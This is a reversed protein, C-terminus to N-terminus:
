LDPLNWGCNWRRIQKFSEKPLPFSDRKELYLIKENNNVVGIMSSIPVSLERMVFGESDMFSVNLTTYTINRARKVKENFPKLSLQYHVIGDRWKFNISAKANLPIIGISSYDRTALLAQLERRAREQQQLRQAELERREEEKEMTRLREEEEAALKRQREETEEQRLEEPTKVLIFKGDKLVSVEGTVNDIRIVNGADDKDITVRPTPRLLLAVSLVLVIIIIIAAYKM